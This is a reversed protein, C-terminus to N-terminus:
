LLRVDVHCAVAPTEGQGAFVTAGEIGFAIGARGGEAELLLGHHFEDGGGEVEALGGRLTIEDGRRRIIKVSGTGFPSVMPASIRRAAKTEFCRGKNRFERVRSTRAKGM